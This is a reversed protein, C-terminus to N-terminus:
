SSAPSRTRPGSPCSGRALRSPTRERRGAQGHRADAPVVPVRLGDGTPGRGRGDRPGRRDAGPRVAPRHLRRGRHRRPDSRAPATPGARDFPPEDAADRLPAPRVPRRPRIRGMELRDQGPGEPRRRLLAALGLPRGPGRHDRRVRPAHEGLIDPRGGGGAPDGVDRRHGRASPRAPIAAPRRSSENSARGPSRPTCSM